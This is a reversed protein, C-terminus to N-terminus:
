LINQDILSCVEPFLSQDDWSLFLGSPPFIFGLVFVSLFMGGADLDFDKLRM